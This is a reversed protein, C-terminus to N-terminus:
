PSLPPSNNFALAPRKVSWRIVRVDYPPIQLSVVAAGNPRQFTMPTETLLERCIIWRPSLDKVRISGQWAEGSHNAVLM